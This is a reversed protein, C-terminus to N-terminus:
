KWEEPIEFGCNFLYDIVSLNEIFEHGQQKYHLPKYDSYIIKIGANSYMQEDNYAKGGTGSYYTNCGSKICQAVNRANNTGEVNLQTSATLLETQIGMRKAIEKVLSINLDSIYEYKKSLEQNLMEYVEKFYPSKGYNMQITTLLKKRWNKAYSIRVQNISDGFSYSVPVTMKFKKGQVKIYNFNEYGENSYQVDDDIVFVDSKYMKYFYGLYPLFNPQHGTFINKTM